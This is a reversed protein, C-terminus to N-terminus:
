RLQKPIPQWEFLFLIARLANPYIGNSTACAGFIWVFSYPEKFFKEWEPMAQDGLDFQLWELDM